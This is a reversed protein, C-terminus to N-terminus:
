GCRRRRAPWALIAGGGLATRFAAPLKRARHEAIRLAIQEGLLPDDMAATVGPEAAVARARVGVRGSGVSGPVHQAKEALTHALCAGRASAVAAFRADFM